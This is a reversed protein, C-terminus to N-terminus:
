GAEHAAAEEGRAIATEHGAGGSVAGAEPAIAFLAAAAFGLAGVGVWHGTPGLHELSITGLWPAIAFTASWLTNYLGLYVGQRGVPELDAVRASAAPGLIMEGATWVFTAAVIGSFGRALAIAAFGIGTILAGVTLLQRHSRSRLAINLPTEVFVIIWGSLAYVFGYHQSGMGLTGTMYLPMSSVAQYAVVGILAIAAFHVALAGRAGPRLATEPARTKSGPEAPRAADLLLAVVGAAAISTSADIWFLAAFHRAALIGGIAPGISMGLNSALRFLGFAERRREPPVSGAIVAACAPRFAEGSLSWIAITAALAVDSTIAPVVAMSAASVVLSTILVPRAGIRSVLFGAIPGAALAGIGFVSLLRGAAETTYEREDTLFVILFPLAMTGIRNALAALAVIWAARPLERLSTWFTM